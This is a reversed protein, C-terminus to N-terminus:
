QLAEFLRLNLVGAKIDQVLKYKRLIDQADLVPNHSENRQLVPLGHMVCLGKIVPMNSNFATSGFSRFTNRFAYFMGSALDDVSYVHHNYVRYGTATATNKELTSYHTTRTYDGDFCERLMQDVLGLDFSPNDSVVHFEMGANAAVRENTELFAYLERAMRNRGEKESEEPRPGVLSNLTPLHKVWFESMARDDHVDSQPYWARLLAQGLVVGTQMNMTSLGIGIVKSGMTEVDIACGM